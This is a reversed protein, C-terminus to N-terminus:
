AVVTARRQLHRLRTRGLKIVQSLVVVVVVVVVELGLAVLDGVQLSSNVMTDTHAVLAVMVLTVVQVVVVMLLAESVVKAAVTVVVMVLLHEVLVVAPLV